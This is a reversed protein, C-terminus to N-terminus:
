KSYFKNLNADRLPLRVISHTSKKVLSPPVNTQYIFQESSILPNTKNHAQASPVETLHRDLHTLTICQPSSVLLLEQFVQRVTAIKRKGSIKYEKLELLMASLQNLMHSSASLLKIKSTIFM